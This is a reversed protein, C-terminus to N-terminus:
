AVRTDILTAKKNLRLSPLPYLFNIKKEKTMKTHKTILFIKLITFIKSKLINVATVTMDFIM